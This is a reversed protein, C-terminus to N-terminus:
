HAALEIRATLESYEASGMLNRVVDLSPQGSDVQRAIVAEGDPDRHLCLRYAYIVDDRTCQRKHEGLAKFGASGALRNVLAFVTQRGAAEAIVAESEPERDLFLRYAFIVDERDSKRGPNYKRAPLGAMLADWETRRVEKFRAHQEALRDAVTSASPFELDRQPLNAVVTRDFGIEAFMEPTMHQGETGIYRAFPQVTNSRWLGLRDCAFAKAADQSSAPPAADLPEYLAFVARHDRRRYDAGCVTRYFPELLPQMKQWHRRLVGFGWQHDLSAL